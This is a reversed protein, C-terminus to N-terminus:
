NEDHIRNRSELARKRQKDSMRDWEEQSQAKDENLLTNWYEALNYRMRCPIEVGM